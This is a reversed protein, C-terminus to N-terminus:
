PSTIPTSNKTAHQSAGSSNSNTSSVSSYIRLTVQFDQARKGADAPDHEGRQQCFCVIRQAPSVILGQSAQGADSGHGLPGALRQDDHATERRVVPKLVGDVVPGPDRYLM